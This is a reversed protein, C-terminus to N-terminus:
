FDGRTAYRDCYEGEIPLGNPTESFWIHFLDEIRDRELEPSTLQLYGYWLKPNNDTTFPFVGTKKDRIWYHVEGTGAIWPDYNRDPDCNALEPDNFACYEGIHVTGGDGATGSDGFDGHRDLGSDRMLSSSDDNGSPIEDNGASCGMMSSGVAVSLTIFLALLQIRM